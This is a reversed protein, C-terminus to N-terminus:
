GKVELETIYIHTLHVTVLIYHNNPMLGTKLLYLISKKLTM